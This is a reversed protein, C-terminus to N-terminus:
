KSLDIEEETPMPVYAPMAFSVVIEEEDPIDAIPPPISPPHRRLYNQLEDVNDEATRGRAPESIICLSFM